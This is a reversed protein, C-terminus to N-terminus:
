NNSIPTRVFSRRTTTPNNPKVDDTTSTVTRPATTIEGFRQAPKAGSVWTDSNTQNSFSRPSTTSFRTKDVVSEDKNAINSQRKPPVSTTVAPRLQQIPNAPFRNDVAATQRRAIGTAQTSTSVVVSRATTSTANLQKDTTTSDPRLVLGQTVDLLTEIDM